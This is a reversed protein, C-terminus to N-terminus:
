QIIKLSLDLSKVSHTLAGISIYDVGTEAYSRVNSLTIGGSAETEMKGNVMRLGEKILEPNFNDFMIRNPINSEVAIKVEALNRTEIEIPISLKNKALYSKAKELASRIGGASDVHNDKILIMDYLGFRHNHAGGTRVAEKELSRLLPTTKRTDLIKANTGEIANVYKKAVTAIGSMRQMCNLVLREAILISQVKGEVVFLIQKPKVEDGDKASFSINIDPDIINFIKTAITLGSIIGEEKVLLHAKGTQTSPITSQSTHDGTGLDEAIAARIFADLEM